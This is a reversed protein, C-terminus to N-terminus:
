EIQEENFDSRPDQGTRTEAEEGEEALKTDDGYGAPEELTLRSGVLQSQIEGFKDKSILESNM